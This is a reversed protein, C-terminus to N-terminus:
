RCSRMAARLLSHGAEGAPVACFESIEGPGVRAGARLAPTDANTLLQSHGDVYGAFRRRQQERAGEVRERIIRSTEGRRADSLKDFDVRPVEVHIDIRDLLPGSLRKQYRSVV